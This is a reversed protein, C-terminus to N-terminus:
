YKNQEGLKSQQNLQSLEKVARNPKKIMRLDWIASISSQLSGDTRGYMPRRESYHLVRKEARLAYLRADELNFLCVVGM